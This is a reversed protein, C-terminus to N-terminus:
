KGKLEEGIYSFMKKMNILELFYNLDERTFEKLLALMPLYVAFTVSGFLILTYFRDISIVLDLAFLAAMTVIGAVLHLSLRV